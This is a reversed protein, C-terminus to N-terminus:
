HTIKTDEYDDTRFSSVPASVPTTTPSAVGSQAIATGATTVSHTHTNFTTRLQNVEDVLQNLKSTLDEINILGKNDGGNFKIVKGDNELTTDGFKVTLNDPDIEVELGEKLNIKLLGKQDQLTIRHGGPTVLGLVQPDELDKPKQGLTWTHYTWLASTLNGNEFEVWVLDGKSPTHLKYGWQYGGITGGSRAWIQADMKPIYVLLKDLGTPDENDIVLGRYRSYYRGLYEIGNDQIIELLSTAM